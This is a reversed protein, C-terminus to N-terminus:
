IEGTSCYREWLQRSFGRVAGDNVETTIFDKRFDDIKENADYIIDDADEPLRESGWYGENWYGWRELDYDSLSMWEVFPFTARCELGSDFSLFEEEGDEDVDYTNEEIYAYELEYFPVPGSCYRCSPTFNKLAERAEDLTDFRGIRDLVDVDFGRQLLNEPNLDRKQARAMESAKIEDYGRILEFYNKKMENGKRRRQQPRDSKTKNIELQRYKLM